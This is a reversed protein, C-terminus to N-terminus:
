RIALCRVARIGLSCRTPDERTRIVFCDAIRINIVHEFVQLVSIAKVVDSRRKKHEYKCCTGPGLDEPKKPANSNDPYVQLQLFDKKMYLTPTPTM